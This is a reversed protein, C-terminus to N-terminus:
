KRSIMALTITGAGTWAVRTYRRVNGTVVIRKGDENPDPVTGGTFTLSAGAVAAFSVNDASDELTVTMSGGTTQGHVVLAAGATTAVANDFSISNGPAAVTQNRVAVFGRDVGTGSSDKSASAEVSVEAATGVDTKIEYKSSQALMSYGFNTAGVASGYPFYSMVDDGGNVWASMLQDVADAAGDFYGELTIMADQLGGVYSKTTATFGTTEAKDRNFAYTCSKFFTSVTFGNFFIEAKSGHVPAM